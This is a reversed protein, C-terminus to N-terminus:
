LFRYQQAKQDYKILPSKCWSSKYAAIMETTPNKVAFLATHMTNCRSALQFQYQFSRGGTSISGTLVADFIYV